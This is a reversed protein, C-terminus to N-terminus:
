DEISWIAIAILSGGISWLVSVAMIAYSCSVTILVACSTPGTYNIAFEIFGVIVLIIGILGALYTGTNQM